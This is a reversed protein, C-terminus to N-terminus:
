FPEDPLAFILEMSMKGEDTAEITLHVSYDCEYNPTRDVLGVDISTGWVASDVRVLDIRRGEATWTMCDDPFALNRQLQDIARELMRRVQRQLEMGVWAVTQLNVNPGHYDKLYYATAFSVPENLWGNRQVVGADMPVRHAQFVTSRNGITHAWDANAHWEATAGYTERKVITPM